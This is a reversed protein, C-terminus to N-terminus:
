RARVQRGYFASGRFYVRIGVAIRTRRRLGSGILSLAWCSGFTSSHTRSSFKLVEGKLLNKKKKRLYPPLSSSKHAPVRSLSVLIHVCVRRTGLNIYQVRSHRQNFLVFSRRTPNKAKTERSSVNEIMIKSTKLVRANQKKGLFFQFRLLFNFLSLFFSIKFTYDLVERTCYQYVIGELYRSFSLNTSRQSPFLVSSDHIDLNSFWCFFQLMSGTDFPAVNNESLFNLLLSSFFHSLSFVFPFLVSIICNKM